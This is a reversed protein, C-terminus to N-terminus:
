RGSALCRAHGRLFGEARFRQYAGRAFQWRTAELVLCQQPSRVVGHRRDCLALANGDFEIYGETRTSGDLTQLPVKANSGREAEFVLTEMQQWRGYLYLEGEIACSLTDTGTTEANFVRVEQAAANASFLVSTALLWPLIRYAGRVYRRSSHFRTLM